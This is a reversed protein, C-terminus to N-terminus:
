ENKENGGDANATLTEDLLEFSCASEGAVLLASSAHFRTGYYAAKWPRNTRTMILFLLAYARILLPKMSRLSLGIKAARLAYFEAAKSCQDYVEVEALLVYLQGMDELLHEQAALGAKPAIKASIQPLASRKETFRMAFCSFMLDFGSREHALKEFSSTKLADQLFKRAEGAAKAAMFSQGIRRKLPGLASMITQHKAGRELAHDLMKRAEV